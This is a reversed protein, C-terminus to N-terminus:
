NFQPLIIETSLLYYLVIIRYKEISDAIGYSPLTCPVPSGRASGALRLDCRDLVTSSVYRDLVSIRGLCLPTDHLVRLLVHIHPRIM